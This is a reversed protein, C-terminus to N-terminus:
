KHESNKNEKLGEYILLSSFIFGIFILVSGYMIWQIRNIFSNVELNNNLYAVCFMMTGFILIAPIFIAIIINKIKLIM